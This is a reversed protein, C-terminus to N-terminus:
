ILSMRTFALKCKQTRSTGALGAMLVAFTKPLPSPRWRFEKNQQQLWCSHHRHVLRRTSIVGFVVVFVLLSRAAIFCATHILFSITGSLLLVRIVTVSSEVEGCRSEAHPSRNNILKRNHTTIDSCPM